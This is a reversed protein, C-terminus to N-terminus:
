IAVVDEAAQIWGGTYRERRRRRHVEIGSVTFAAARGRRDLQAAGVRACRALKRVCQRTIRRQILHGRPGPLQARAAPLAGERPVRRQELGVVLVVDEEDRGRLGAESVERVEAAGPTLP